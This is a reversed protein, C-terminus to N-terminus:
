LIGTRILSVYIEWFVLVQKPKAISAIVLGKEWMPAYMIKDEQLHTHM